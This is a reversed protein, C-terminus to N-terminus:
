FIAKTLASVAEPSAGSRMAKGVLASAIVGMQLIMLKEPVGAKAHALGIKCVRAAHEGGYDETLTLELWSKFLERAREISLSARRAIELAEGSRLAAAVAEDLVEDLGEVLGGLEALASVKRKGLSLYRKFERSAQKIEKFAM